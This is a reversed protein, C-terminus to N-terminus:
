AIVIRRLSCVQRDANTLFFVLCIFSNSYPIACTLAILVLWRAENGQSIGTHVYCRVFAESCDFITFRVDIITNKNKKEALILGANRSGLLLRSVKNIRGTTVKM